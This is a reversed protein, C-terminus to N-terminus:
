NKSIPIVNVHYSKEDVPSTNSYLKGMISLVEDLIYDPYRELGYPITIPEDNKDLWVQSRSSKNETPRLGHKKLEGIFEKQTFIRMAMAIGKHLM